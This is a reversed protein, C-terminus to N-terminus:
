GNALWQAQDHGLPVSGRAWYGPTNALQAVPRIFTTHGFPTQANGMLDSLESVGPTKLSLRDVCGLRNLWESSQALSVRVHWSGGQRQQHALAMLVGFAALYGTAHDLAQCPLPGPADQGRAQAGAAAIGSAMQVLSDFGRRQAWPGQHSWACLSLCVIGPRLAAVQHPAFGHAAIAGPRYGQTMVHAGGLLETFRAKDDARLLDLHCSRKGRGTDIVLQQLFPLRPAHVRLVQAGHEALTRGCVPGAIVKTMDLVRVGSLPREGPEMELVPADGTKIIELLPLRAVAAGQPSAGWEDRSRMKVGPLMRQALADELQQAQWHSIAAAIEDSDADAACKLLQLHGARHHAFGTHLQVWRADKTEYYARLRSEDNVPAGDLGQYRESAFAAQAHRSDVSVQQERLGRIQALQAAGLGTAATTITAMEEIRFVSPMLPGRMTLLLQDFTNRAGGADAWIRGVIDIPSGDTHMSISHNM